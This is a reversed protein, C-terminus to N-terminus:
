SHLRTLTKAHLSSGSGTLSDCIFVSPVSLLSCLGSARIRLCIVMDPLRISVRRLKQCFTSHSYSLPHIVFFVVAGCVGSNEVVRLKGPTRPTSAGGSAAEARADHGRPVGGVRISGHVAPIQGGSIFAPLAFMAVLTSRLLM